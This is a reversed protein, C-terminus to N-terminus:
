WFCALNFAPEPSLFYNIELLPLKRTAFLFYSRRRLKTWFYVPSCTLLAFKSLPMREILERGPNM